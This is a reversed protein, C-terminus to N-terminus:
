QVNGSQMHRVRHTDYTQLVRLFEYIYKKTHEISHKGKWERERKKKERVKKKRIRKGTSDKGM